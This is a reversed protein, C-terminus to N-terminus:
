EQEGGEARRVFDEMRKTAIEIEGRPTKQTKKQFGHLFVIRQGTYFFYMVRYINGGSARRLEWIKGEIKKVLPERAQVNMRRLREISWDFRAQTKLDLIQLFDEVPTEGQENTYYVIEWEYKETM